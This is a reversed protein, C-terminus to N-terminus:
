SVFSPDEPEDRDHSFGAEAELDDEDDIDDLEDDFGEAIDFEDLNVDEDGDGAHPDASGEEVADEACEDCLASRHGPQLEEGCQTCTKM